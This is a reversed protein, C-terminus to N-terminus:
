KIGWASLVANEQETYKMKLDVLHRNQRYWERDSKDLARGKALQSRIRVIQAFTCDGIEMYASTFTWWHLYPLARVETGLVRNIPAVVQKFDQEWSMLPPSKSHGGEDEGGGLFWFCQRIAEEYHEHPMDDFAPYFIMYVASAKEADTLETDSLAACLDLAARYDSRIDYQTGCVEVTTPLEYM